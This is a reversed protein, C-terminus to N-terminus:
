GKIMELFTAEDIVAVGLKEAKELKSGAEAGAIVYDTKKSVSGSVKAGVDQAMTQAEARGLTPLTGTFVLTKGFFPNSESKARVAFEMKLGAKELRELLDVNTPVSLWTVVSEAIKDGIDRIAALQEPQVELLNKVTGFEEALIRAVKAGVHRIGLGFLLKDLENEKSAEIAKLLNDASKEGM